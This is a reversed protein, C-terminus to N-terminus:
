LHKRLKQNQFFLQYYVLLKYSLRKCIINEQMSNNKMLKNFLGKKFKNVVHRITKIAM